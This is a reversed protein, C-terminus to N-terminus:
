NYYVYFTLGIIFLIFAAFGVASVKEINADPKPHKGFTVIKLIFWGIGWSVVHFIIEIFFWAFLRALAGLLGVAIEEVPM